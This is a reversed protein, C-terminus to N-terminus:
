KNWEIKLSVIAFVRRGHINRYPFMIIPTKIGLTGLIQKGVKSKIEKGTM